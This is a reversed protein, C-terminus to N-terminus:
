VPHCHRRHGYGGVECSRRRGHDHHRGLYPACLQAAALLSGAITLIEWGLRRWGALRGTKDVAMGGRRRLWKYQPEPQNTPQNPLPPLGAAAAVAGGHCTRRLRQVQGQGQMATPSRVRPCTSMPLPRPRPLCSMRSAAAALWSSTENGPIQWHCHHDSPDPNGRQTTM